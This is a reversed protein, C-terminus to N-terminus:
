LSAMNTLFTYTGTTYDRAWVTPFCSTDVMDCAAMYTWLGSFYTFFAGDKAGVTLFRMAQFMKFFAGDALLIYAVIALKVARHAFVGDTLKMLFFAVFTSFWNAFLVSFSTNDAAFVM